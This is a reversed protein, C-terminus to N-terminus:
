EADGGGGGGGGDSVAEELQVGVSELTRESQMARDKHQKTAKKLHEKDQQHFKKLELVEGQM